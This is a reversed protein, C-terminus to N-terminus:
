GCGWSGDEDGDEDGDGDDNGDGDPRRCLSPDGEIIEDARAGPLVQLDRRV